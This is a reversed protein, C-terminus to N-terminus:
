ARLGRRRTSRAPGTPTACLGLMRAAVEALAPEPLLHQALEPDAVRRAGPVLQQRSGLAVAEGALLQEGRSEGLAPSLSPTKSRKLARM